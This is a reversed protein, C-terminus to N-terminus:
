VGGCNSPLGRVCHFGDDKGGALARAEAMQDVVPGFAQDVEVPAAQEVALEAIEVGDIIEQLPMDVVTISSKVPIASSAGTTVSRRAARPRPM